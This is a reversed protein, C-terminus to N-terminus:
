FVFAGWLMNKCDLERIKPKAAGVVRGWFLDLARPNAIQTTTLCVTRREQLCDLQM